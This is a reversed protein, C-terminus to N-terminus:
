ALKRRKALAVIGLGAGILAISAPEPTQVNVVMTDTALLNNSLDRVVLHFQYSRPSNVNYEGALPFDGFIPNGSQQAGWGGAQLGNTEVGNWGANDFWYTLPNITATAFTTLNTITLTALVDAYTLTGVGEPRLNISWEYNWAARGPVGIQPGTPVNYTGDPSHIVNPSQRLKARLGLEIGNETTVVFGGNPNGSGNYWGPEGLTGPSVLNADYATAGFATTALAIFVLVALAKIRIM